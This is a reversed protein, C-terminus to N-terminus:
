DDLFMDWNEPFKLGVAELESQAAGMREQRAEEYQAQQDPRLVNMIAEDRSQGSSLQTSGSALGELQMSPDFDPSSRAMLAFVQDQQGEDLTVIRNLQSVRRDAEDQVRAVKQNLRDTKFQERDGGSLTNEMFDDLGDDDPRNRRGAQALDELTTSDRLTFEHYAALNTETKTKLWERLRVQQAPSLHYKRTLDDLVRENHKLMERRQLREFIPSFDRLAPKAARYVDNMDVTRGAKLDDVIDRAGGALKQQTTLGPKPARAEAAALEVRTKTLERELDANRAEVSGAPPPFSTQFLVAGTIGVALGTILMLLARMVRLM